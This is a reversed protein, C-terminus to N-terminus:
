NRLSTLWPFLYDFDGVCAFTCTQPACAAPRNDDAAQRRSAHRRFCQAPRINSSSKPLSGFLVPQGGTSGPFLGRTKNEAQVFRTDVRFKNQSESQNECVPNCRLFTANPPHFRRDQPSKAAM